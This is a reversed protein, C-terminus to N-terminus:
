IHILVLQLNEQNHCMRECSPVSTWTGNSCVATADFNKAKYGEDCQIRIKDGEAYLAKPQLVQAHPIEPLLCAEADSSLSFNIIINSLFFFFFFVAGLKLLKKGSSSPSLQVFECIINEHTVWSQILSNCFFVFHSSLVFERNVEWQTLCIQHLTHPM